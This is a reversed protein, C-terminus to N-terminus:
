APTKTKALVVHKEIAQEVIRELPGILGVAKEKLPGLNALVEQVAAQKVSAAVEPTFLGQAKLGSVIRQNTDAVVMEAIREVTDLIDNVSPEADPPIYPAIKEEIKKVGGRLGMTLATVAISLGATALYGAANTLIENM